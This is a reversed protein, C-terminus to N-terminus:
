DAGTASLTAASRRETRYGRVDPLEIDGFYHRSFYRVIDGVTRFRALVDDSLEHDFAEELCIAVRLKGVRGVGLDYALRTNASIKAPDVQTAREIALIIKNLVATEFTPHMM